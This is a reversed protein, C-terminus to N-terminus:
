CAYFTNPVSCNVYNKETKFTLKNNRGFALLEEDIYYYENIHRDTEIM